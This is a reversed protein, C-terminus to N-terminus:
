NGTQSSKLRAIESELNRIFETAKEQEKVLGTIDKTFCRTHIFEGDRWLANSNVLVYKTTGNKCVLTAPCDKITEKGILRKMIVDIADKDLHFNSIHKNLYEEKTYGLLDLEAQNAWIIIGSGNVWHLPMSANEIFDILDETRNIGNEDGTDGAQYNDDM